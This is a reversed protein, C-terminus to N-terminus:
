TTAYGGKLGIKELNEKKNDYVWLELGSPMPAWFNLSAENLRDLCILFLTVTSSIVKWAHDV